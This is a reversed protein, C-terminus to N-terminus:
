RRTGRLVVIGGHVDSELLVDLRGDGDVDDLHLGSPYEVGAPLHVPDAFGGDPLGALVAIESSVQNAAVLDPRGDGTVDGLAAARPGGGQGYFSPAAFGGRGDGALVWTANRSKPAVLVDPIGDGTADAIALHRRVEHRDMPLTRITRADFSGRGDNLLVSLDATGRGNTRPGVLDLDAAAPIKNVGRLLTAKRLGGRGDGLLVFVGGAEALVDLAGDGNLDAVGVDNVWGPVPYRRQPAHGDRTARLVAVSEGDFTGTVLDRRGDRDLDAIALGAPRDAIARCEVVVIPDRPSTRPKPPHCEECTKPRTLAPVDLHRASGFAGTGDALRIAIQQGAVSALDLRGDGDVDLLQTPFHRDTPTRVPGDFDWGRPEAPAPGPAAPFAGPLVLPRPSAACSTGNASRLVTVQKRYYGAVVLGGACDGDVDAVAVTSPTEALRTAAGEGFFGKGDGPAVIVQHPLSRAVVLDPRGDGTADGVALGEIRDVEAQVRYLRAPGLGDRTALRVDVGQPAKSLLDPRGDGDLDVSALLPPETGAPGIRAPPGFGGRGDNHMAYLTGSRLVALDAYGDAGLDIATIAEPNASPAYRTPREFGGRGDGRLVAVVWNGDLSALDLTGDGDFDATAVHKAAAFTAHAVPVALTGEAQGRYLVVGKTSAGVVDHAGDRDLDAVVPNRLAEPLPTAGFQGDAGRRLVTPSSGDAASLVLEARGDSDLDGAALGRVIGPTPVTVPADFAPVGARPVAAAPAVVSGPGCAALVALGLTTAAARRLRAPKM